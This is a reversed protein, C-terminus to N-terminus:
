RGNTPLGNNITLYLIDKQKDTMHGNKNHINKIIKQEDLERNNISFTTPQKNNLIIKSYIDKLKDKDLNLLTNYKNYLSVIHLYQKNQLREIHTYKNQAYVPYTNKIKHGIWYILLAHGPIDATNKIRQLRM